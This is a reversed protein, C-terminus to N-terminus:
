TDHDNKHPQLCRFNVTHTHTHQIWCSLFVLYFVDTNGSVGLFYKCKHRNVKFQKALEDKYLRNEAVFLITALTHILKSVM